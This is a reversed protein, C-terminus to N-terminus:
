SRPEAHANANVSTLLEAFTFPKILCSRVGLQSARNQSSEDQRATVIVVPTAIKRDRMQELVELGDIDPLGLDLLVLDWRNDIEAAELATRGASCWSVSHGQAQLGKMMFGAIRPEDEVLLLNM